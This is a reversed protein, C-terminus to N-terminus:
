DFDSSGPFLPCGDLLEALVCGISWIDVKETYKKNGFMIEPAKYWRYINFTQSVKSQELIMLIPTLPTSM